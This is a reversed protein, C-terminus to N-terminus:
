QRPEEPVPPLPERHLRCPVLSGPFAPGAGPPYVVRCYCPDVRGDLRRSAERIFVETFGRPVPCCPGFWGIGGLEDGVDGEVAYVCSTCGVCIKLALPAPEQRRQAPQRPQALARHLDEQMWAPLPKGLEDLIVDAM